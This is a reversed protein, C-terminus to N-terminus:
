PSIQIKPRINPVKRLSLDCPSYVRRYKLYRTVTKEIEDLLNSVAYGVLDNVGAAHISRLSM